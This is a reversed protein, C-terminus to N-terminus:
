YFCYVGTVTYLFDAAYRPELPIFEDEHIGAVVARTTRYDLPKVRGTSMDSGDGQEYDVYSTCKLTYVESLPLFLNGKDHITTHNTM